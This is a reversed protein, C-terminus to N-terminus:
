RHSEEDLARRPCGTGPDLEAEDLRAAGAEGVGVAVLRRGSAVEDVADDLDRGRPSAVRRRVEFHGRRRRAPVGRAARPRTAPALAGRPAPLPDRGTRAVMPAM